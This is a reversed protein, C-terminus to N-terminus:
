CGRDLYGLVALVIEEVLAEIELRPQGHVVSAHTMSEIIVYCMQALIKARARPLGTITKLYQEIPSSEIGTFSFRPEAVDVEFGVDAYRVTLLYHLWPNRAHAEVNARVVWRLADELDLGNASEIADQLADNVDRLHRRRLEAILAEKNPFYQYISGVSVGALEAIANTTLRELSQETLIRATADLVADVTFTSRPQTPKRRPSLSSKEEPMKRRVDEESM